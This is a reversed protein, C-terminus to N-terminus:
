AAGVAQQVAALAEGVAGPNAGGGQALDDKGGGGGGLAKAALGVLAGAKLGRERAGETVAVVVVPRDKPVGAVMVVAPRATLRGRVDVALKRLDDAGTGDPARHGVFAIGNVDEAGDALSGAVALVQRSRLKELEKEAERLRSVVGSVREPLEEKRAKLQEALQAVLVSERALFRFADIGVLAEVRRVGAGISAEGLVKILGLQGSRAVHTGGCLERSYEGVEVVRVEDGYKEGFLALAGMARAEDISTHFARVDLDGVLVDNVEDEVDRLVSPPVAGSATFDFRFRGPSNESGAQAASEGLARRFGAHVMHTATHSRSIARRREVDVEAHATDGAQAEGSAVKGRHVILGALPSQVDTVEIVAGNGLRIVGHDALQGGGEAYFPTRDLVVEVETGEGAAPANAGNVLLGVLRADGLLHRYGIFDVRGGAGTLLEDLVSVDLNGTKKDRADKKARERQERMLRRFGEEDVQLGQESAMELTLDIPFGYTDHLKFAQDGALTAGGARRTQEAATDFIATGTRLTQLFSDEEADIVTHINAATRVLEPYQEGMAAIAVATLEHMLGADEGGLLRLNRISRRLIRRLVYGRGENGPRIGDAVMMTGSRVHDAIVRLSVDARHERGYRTDTLGAARDLVRWLTDTEYINDVGQLIAAMRELGMGTDINKSPLDGLIPFDTKSEGPGREYQMFVLNWVELYRDEDAVPGGERGYEPGRDYYIESCPGCPGPVGMSWFNDEMGRRQIRDLPVGVKDHWLGVAEDDDNFVTVWLKEEPFGFGGDDRSRTLLEWAFPIAQEKFYDGISFNGLMQFFTAHRTTKGVEEIDPTRVCKQASTMRPSPPTRQGLFYPKFPVMGANVLLLTPDEAVLSASPVVTHGREEFFGLFRRAVEASEM